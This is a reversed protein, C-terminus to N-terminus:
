FQRLPCKVFAGVMMLQIISLELKALSTMLVCCNLKDSWMKVTKRVSYHPHPYQRPRRPTMEAAMELWSSVSRNFNSMPPRPCCEPWSVHPSSARCTMIPPHHSGPCWMVHWARTVLIPAYWWLNLSRHSAITLTETKGLTIRKRQKSLDRRM